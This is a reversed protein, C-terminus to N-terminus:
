DNKQEKNKSLRRYLEISLKSNQRFAIFLLLIVIFFSLNYLSNIILIIYLATSSYTTMVFVHKFKIQRFRLRLMWTSLLIFFGFLLINSIFDFLIIVTAWTTKTGLVIEDIGNILQTFFADEDTELLGFDLTRLDEPLESIPLQILSRSAVIFHVNEDYIVVNYGTENYNSSVLEDTSDIYVSLIVDQYLLTSVKTDCNLTNDVIACSPDVEPFDNKIREEQNPSIGDYTITNIIVSTSLLLAFLLAYLFVKWLADNRYDVLKAPNLLSDYFRKYM